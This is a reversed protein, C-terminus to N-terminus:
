LDDFMWEIFVVIFAVVCIGLLLIFSYAICATFIDYGTM